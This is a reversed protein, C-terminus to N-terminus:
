REPFRDPGLRYRIQTEFRKQERQNAKRLSIIRIAEGRRSFAAAILRGRIYGFGIFRPEGYDKRTDESLLMPGAFMEPADMFDIGHKALNSLRKEEDREFTMFSIYMCFTVVVLSM